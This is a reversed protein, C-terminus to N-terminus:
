AMDIISCHSIVERLNCVKTCNNIVDKSRQCKSETLNCVKTYNNIVDKNRQYEGETLNCVKTCNNIVDKSRQCKSETLNCVKTYSNVVDKSRQCESQKLQWMQERLYSQVRLSFLVSRFIQVGSCILLHVSGFWVSHKVFGFRFM